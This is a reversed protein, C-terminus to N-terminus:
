SDLDLLGEPPDIVVVGDALSVSTVIASVFQVLIEGGSEARVALLEGAPTHLVEGVVGVIRGEVTRVRLGELQLDYFEDPDSIPPLDASDVLFLWGRLSEAADRDTVGELRVLLRGGHPRVSDLVVDRGSGRRSDKLRMRRGTVFRAEPDDTRIDVVLEGSVGHAKAIRGIVLEM